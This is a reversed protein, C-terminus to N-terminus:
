FGRGGQGRGLIQMLLQMVQPNMAPAQQQGMMGMGMGPNPPFQGMPPAFGPPPGMNPPQFGPQPMVGLQPLQGQGGPQYNLQIGRPMQPGPM